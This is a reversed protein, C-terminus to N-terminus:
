ICYPFCLFFYVCVCLLSFLLFSSLCFCSIFMMRMLFLLRLSLVNNYLPVFGLCCVFLCFNLLGLSSSPLFFSLFFSLCHGSTIPYSKESTHYGIISASSRSHFISVGALLCLLVSLRSARGYLGSARPIYRPCFHGLFLRAFCRSLFVFLLM